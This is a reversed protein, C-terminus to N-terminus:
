EEGFRGIKVKQLRKNLALVLHNNLDRSGIFQSAACLIQLKRALCCLQVCSNTVHNSHFGRTASSSIACGNAITLKTAGFNAITNRSSEVNRRCIVHDYIARSLIARLFTAYRNRGIVVRTDLSTRTILISRLHDDGKRYTMKKLLLVVIDHNDVQLRRKLQTALFTSLLLNFRLPVRSGRDEGHLKRAGYGDVASEFWEDPQRLIAEVQLM